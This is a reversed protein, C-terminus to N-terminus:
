ELGVIGGDKDILVWDGNREVWYHNEFRNGYEFDPTIPYVFRFGDAILCGARDLFSYVLNGGLILLKRLFFRYLLLFMNARIIIQTFATMIETM